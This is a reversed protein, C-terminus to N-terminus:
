QQKIEKVSEELEQFSKSAKMKADLTRNKKVESLLFKNSDDVSYKVKVFARYGQGERNIQLKTRQVGILNVRAVVLKSTQNIERVVSTDLDGIEMAYNKMMSDIHSSFNAALERKASLMAKDVAFQMDTSYESAVANLVDGESKETYWSPYKVEDSFSPLEPTKVAMETKTKFSGCAALSLVLPALIFYKKM